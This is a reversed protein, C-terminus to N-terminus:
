WFFMITGNTNLVIRITFKKTYHIIELAKNGSATFNESNERVSFVYKRWGPKQITYCRQEIAMGNSSVCNNM